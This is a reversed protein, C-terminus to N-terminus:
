TPCDVEWTPSGTVVVSHSHSSADAPVGAGEDLPLWLLTSADTGMCLLPVFDSTYLAVDSIRVEGIAAPAHFMPSSYGHRGIELYSGPDVQQVMGSALASDVEVGNVFLRAYAGGYSAALHVWAGRRLVVGHPSFLQASQGTTHM